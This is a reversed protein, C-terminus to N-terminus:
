KRRNLSNECCYEVKRSNRYKKNGYWIHALFTIEELETFRPQTFIEPLNNNVGTRRLKKMRRLHQLGRNRSFKPQNRTDSRHKQRQSRLSTHTQSNRLSWCLKRLKRLKWLRKNRRRYRRWEVGQGQFLLFCTIDAHYLMNQLYYWVAALTSMSECDIREKRRSKRFLQVFIPRPLLDQGSKSFLMMSIYEIRLLCQRIRTAINAVVSRDKATFYPKIMKIQLISDSKATEPM